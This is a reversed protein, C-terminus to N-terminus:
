QAEGATDAEQPLEKRKPLRLKGTDLFLWAAMTLYLVPEGSGPIAVLCLAGTLMTVAIYAKRSGAGAELALRHYCSLMLGVHALLPFLYRMLQPQPFWHGYHQVLHLMFFICVISRLLVHARLGKYRFLALLVCAAAALIGVLAAYRLMGTESAYLALATTILGAAAAANALAAPLSPPFMGGPKRSDGKGALAFWIVGATLAIVMPTLWLAPHSTLLGKDDVGAKLLWFQLGMGVLGLAGCLIPLNSPRKFFRM